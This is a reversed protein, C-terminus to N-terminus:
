QFRNSGPRGSGIIGVVMLRAPLRTSFSTVGAPVPIGVANAGDLGAGAGCGVLGLSSVLGRAVGRGAGSGVFCGAAVFVLAAGIPSYVSRGPTSEVASWAVTRGVGIMGLNQRVLLFM